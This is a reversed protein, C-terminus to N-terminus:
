DDVTLRHADIEQLCFGRLRGHGDARENQGVGLQTAAQRLLEHHRATVADDSRVPDVYEWFIEFTLSVLREDNLGALHRRVNRRSVGNLWEVSWDRVISLLSPGREPEKGLGTRELQIRLAGHGAAGYLVALFDPHSGSEAGSAEFVGYGVLGALAYVVVL